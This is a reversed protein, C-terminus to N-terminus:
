RTRHCRTWDMRHLVGALSRILQFVTCSLKSRQPRTKSIRRRPVYSSGRFFNAVPELDSLLLIVRLLGCTNFLSYMLTTSNYVICRGFYCVSFYVSQLALCHRSFERIVIKLEINLDKHIAFAFKSDDDEASIHFWCKEDSIPVTLASYYVRCTCTYPYASYLVFLVFLVFVGDDDSYM